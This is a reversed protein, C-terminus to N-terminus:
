VCPDSFSEYGEYEDDKPLSFSEDDEYEPLEGEMEEHEENEEEPEIEPKTEPGEDEVMPLPSFETSRSILKEMERKTLIQTPVDRTYDWFVWVFDFKETEPRNETWFSRGSVLKVEMLTGDKKIVKGKIITTM